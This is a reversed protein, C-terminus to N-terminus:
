YEGCIVAVDHRTCYKKNIRYIFVSGSEPVAKYTYKKGIFFVICLSYNKKVRKQLSRIVCPMVDVFVKNPTGIYEWDM